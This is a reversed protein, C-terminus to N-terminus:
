GEKREKGLHRHPPCEMEEIERRHCRRQGKKKKKAAGKSEFVCM